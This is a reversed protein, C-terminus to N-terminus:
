SVQEDHWSVVIDELGVKWEGWHAEEFEGGGDVVVKAEVLVAKEVVAVVEVVLVLKGKGLIVSSGKGRELSYGLRGGVEKLKGMIVEMSANSVFRRENRSDIEFLGSLDLGSSLSIIDFANLSPGVDFDSCDKESALLHEIDSFSNHSKLPLSKKFWSTGALVQLSMRTDPNPDLLQHIIHKVPKSIWEPFQYDRKHIKKYMTVLNNDNFPMHGCLLMYLIVGCSWADAKSGEYGRRCIVEPATFAPTGCATHLLGDRLQEPLASLGFDSVKLNGKHDLLLNQPKVDRHAVGNEHCYNLASVLQQFYRRAAPETFRGRRVIRSFLEGGAALEMVLYIRTRTAMVEHIRLINPHSQLRRMAGIERLIQPELALASSDKNIVKIAVHANDALSLAQYVKAFSGRGLLRGLQYKNQITTTTTTSSSRSAPAPPPAPPPQPPPSPPSPPKM